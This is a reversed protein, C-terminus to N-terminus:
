TEYSRFSKIYNIFEENENKYSKNQELSKHFDIIERSSVKEQNNWSNRADMIKRSVTNQPNEYTSPFDYNVLYGKNKYYSEATYTVHGVPEEPTFAKMNPITFPKPNAPDNKLVFVSGDPDTHALAFGYRDLERNISAEKIFRTSGYSQVVLTKIKSGEPRLAQKCFSLFFQLSFPHMEALAHNCTICDFRPIEQFRLKIYEWWPIHACDGSELADLDANCSFGVEKLPSLDLANRVRGWLRNQHLYFAQAIDSACYTYGLQMLYCGLYGSGSGLELVRVGPQDYLAMIHRLPRLSQLNSAKACRTKMLHSESYMLSLEANKKYLQFAWETLGNPFFETLVNKFRLDHMAEIYRVLEKEEQIVVPYGLKDFFVPKFAEIIRAGEIECIADSEAANYTDIGIDCDKYDSIM